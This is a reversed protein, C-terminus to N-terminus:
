PENGRGTGALVGRIAPLTEDLEWEIETGLLQVLEHLGADFDEGQDLESRRAGRSMRELRDILRRRKPGTRLYMSAVRRLGGETSMFRTVETLAAERASVHRLTRVVLDDYEAREAVSGGRTAHLRTFLRRLELDEDELVDVARDRGNLVTM